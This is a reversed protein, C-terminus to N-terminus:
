SSQRIEQAAEVMLKLAPETEEWGRTKLGCDPNVWLNSPPIVDAAKRLLVLIEDKAPVRPSHIDYVGPGIESPYKFRCFADLLEMQSRSTEISIVDADLAAIAEIIDNFESYCMHTHIQTEDAVGASSVRFAEVAWKLYAGREAQLLPLGERLAPEDIQIVKAGAKELDMVEDRIALALHMATTSRPQDNRVFSWQLMTIPGTLMGKVPRSTLTQAFVTWDVTMSAPRRVDGFIIPPKVCRSGYSQVWGFGTFVFGDLQEGFYEVMDTREFEGHVLVDLGLNEQRRICETIRQKLFSEYQEKSLEGARFSARAKRVAVTQPFSGITTTPFSPLGLHQRQAHKRRRYDSGRRKDNETLAAVRAQVDPNNVRSSSRRSALSAACAELLASSDDGVIAQRLLVVEGLKQQAFALWDRLETDLKDELDLDMPVHLLSCSPSIQFSCRSSAAVIPGIRATISPLDSKWVNRGDIVGLSLVKDAPLAEEVAELQLAGRVLDVHLGHIPLSRLVSLNPAPLAGFYTAIVINLPQREALYAYTFKYAELARDSLNTVLMPEDIQVDTAGLSALKKLIEAYVPLLRSLLDLPAFGAGRDSNAEAKAKGLLLFSVPGLLVPRPSSSSLLQRAEMWEDFVKRSSIGFSQDAVFEPVIYHYNTDFWKTMEMAPVTMEESTLGRAMAFYTSLPVMKASNTSDSSTWGYKLPVCGLLVAMDLVHDYLSFDNCPVIDVGAEEMTTLHSRRLKASTTALDNFSYTGKWFAEVARKLERQRGIRPYGLVATSVKGM